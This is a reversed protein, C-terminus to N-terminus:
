LKGQKQEEISRAMKLGVSKLAVVTDTMAEPQELADNITWNPFM